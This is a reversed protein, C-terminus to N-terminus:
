WCSLSFDEISQIIIGTILIDILFITFGCHIGQHDRKFHHRYHHQYASGPYCIDKTSGTRVDKILAIGGGFMHVHFNGDYYGLAL